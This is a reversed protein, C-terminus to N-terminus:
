EHHSKCIHIYIIEMYFANLQVDLAGFAYLAYM